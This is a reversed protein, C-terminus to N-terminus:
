EHVALRRGKLGLSKCFEVLGFIVVILPIGKVLLTSFDFM